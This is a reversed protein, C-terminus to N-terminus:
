VISTTLVDYPQADYTTWTLYHTTLVTRLLFDTCDHVTRRLRVSVQVLPVVLYTFLARLASISLLNYVFLLQICITSLLLIEALLRTNEALHKGVVPNDCTIPGRWRKIPNDCYGSVLGCAHLNLDTLATLSTALARLAKDSLQFSCGRLDLSTLDTQGALTKLWEDDGDLGKADLSARAAVHAMVYPCQAESHAFVQIEKVRPFRTNSIDSWPRSEFGGAVRLRVVRQDHADQWGKCTRRFVASVGRDWKLQEMVDKCYYRIPVCVYIFANDNFYLQVKYHV